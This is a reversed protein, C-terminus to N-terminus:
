SGTCNSYSVSTKLDLRARKMIYLLKATVSHFLEKRLGELKECEDNTERLHKQAPSAVAETIEEGQEAEFVSVAENLQDKM